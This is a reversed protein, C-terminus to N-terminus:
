NKFEWKSHGFQVILDIDLGDVDPVDCAGFCDGMWIFCECNAKGSIEDCIIQAYPKMGEPFQFLIRKAKKQKIQKFVKGLELEYKENIENITTNQM